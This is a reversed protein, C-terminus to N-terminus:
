TMKPVGIFYWPDQGQDPRKRGKKRKKPKPTDSQKTTEPAEPVHLSAVPKEIDKVVQPVSNSELLSSQPPELRNENELINKELEANSNQGHGTQDSINKKLKVYKDKYTKLTQYEEFSILIKRSTM